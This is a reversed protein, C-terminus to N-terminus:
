VGEPNEQEENEKMLRINTKIKEVLSDNMFEHSDEINFNHVTPKFKDPINDITSQIEQLNDDNMVVIDDAWEILVRDAYIIAFNQNSGACRVNWDTERAAVIMATPSRLCGASCVFLVKRYDGQYPNDAVTLRNMLDSM